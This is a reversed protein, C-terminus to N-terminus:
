MEFRKECKGAAFHYLLNFNQIDEKKLLDLERLMEMTPKGKEDPINSSSLFKLANRDGAM